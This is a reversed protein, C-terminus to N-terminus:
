NYAKIDSLMTLMIDNNDQVATSSSNPHPSSNSATGLSLRMLDPCPGVSKPHLYVIESCFEVSM